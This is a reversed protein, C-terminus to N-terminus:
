IQRVMRTSPSSSALPPPFHRGPSHDSYFMGGNLPPKQNVMEIFIRHNQGKQLDVLDDGLVQDAQKKKKKEWIRRGELKAEEEDVEYEEDSEGLTTRGEDM